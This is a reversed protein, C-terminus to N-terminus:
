QLYYVEYKRDYTEFLKKMMLSSRINNDWVFSTEVFKYKDQVLRRFTDLLTFTATYSCSGLANVKVTNIKKRRLIYNIGIALLSYDRGGDLMQNFDPHWFLFGIAKGDKDEAFLLNEPKLFPKLTKILQYFHLPEAPYYLHTKAITKECLGRMLEMEECFKDLRCFRINVKCDKIKPFTSIVKEMRGKYTSLTDKPLGTFYKRYYSKNYQNDFSNKKGFGEALIGVGYSIHANLGVIVGKAGTERKFKDARSLIMKVADDCYPMADFFSVQVYPLRSNYILIAQAVTKNCYRIQAVIKRCSKAFDTEDYLVSKLVFKETCVYCPDCKYLEARFSIFSKRANYNDLEVLEM